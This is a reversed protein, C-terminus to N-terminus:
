SLGVCHRRSWRDEGHGGRCTRAMPTVTSIATGSWASGRGAPGGTTGHRRRRARRARPRRTRRRLRARRPVGLRGAVVPEGGLDGHGRQPGGGAQPDVQVRAPDGVFAATHQGDDAGDPVPLVVAVRARALAAPSRRRRSPTSRGQRSSRAAGSVARPPGRGAVAGRCAAATVPRDRAAASARRPATPGVPRAAARSRRPRPSQGPEAGGLAHQLEDLLRRRQRLKRAREM